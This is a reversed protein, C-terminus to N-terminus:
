FSQSFLKMLQRIIKLQILNTIEDFGIHFLRFLKRTVSGSLRLLKGRQLSSQPIEYSSEARFKQQISHYKLTKMPKFFGELWRQL